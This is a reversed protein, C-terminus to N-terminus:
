KKKTKLNRQERMLKKTYPKLGQDIASLVGEWTTEEEIDRYIKNEIFIIELSANHWQDQLEGLKIKLEKKLLEVTNDTSTKLIDSVGIFVPKNDQIICTLPSISM